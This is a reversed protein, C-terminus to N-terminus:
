DDEGGEQFENVIMDKIHWEIADMLIEPFKNDLSKLIATLEKTVGKKDGHILVRVDVGNEEDTTATIKIM